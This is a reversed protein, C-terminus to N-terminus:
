MGVKAFNTDCPWICQVVEIRAHALEGQLAHKSPNSRRTGHDLVKRQLRPQVENTDVRKKPAVSGSSGGHDPENNKEGQYM